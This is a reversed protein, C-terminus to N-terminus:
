LIAKLGDCVKKYAEAVQPMMAIAVSWDGGRMAAEQAVVMQQMAECGLTGCVSKLTHAAAEAAKQDDAAVAAELAAYSKETLFRNLYKDLMKENGMFRDLAVKVNIGAGELSAKKQADM